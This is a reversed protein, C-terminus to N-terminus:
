AGISSLMQAKPLGERGSLQLQLWKLFVLHCCLHM